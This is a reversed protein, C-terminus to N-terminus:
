LLDNGDLDEDEIDLDDGFDEEASARGALPEGDKVKQINNLGAGIGKNGSTNFAFFNISVRGYCGSYLEEPDIIKNLDKDVVGPKQKSTASIFYHGQYAEDDPREEDGDRLPLKLKGGKGLKTAGEKKAAEIAANIKKITEKDKKPILVSVSYKKEAGDEIAQPEFAHLYSLRCVGTVVKTASKVKDAM